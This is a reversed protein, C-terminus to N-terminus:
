GKNSSVCNEMPEPKGFSGNFITMEQSENQADIEAIKNEISSLLETNVPNSQMVSVRKKYLEAQTMVALNM